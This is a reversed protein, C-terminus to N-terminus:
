KNRSKLIFKNLKDKKRTRKGDVLGWPSCPHRGGSTKGEGGGLPHDVPNMAVGRVRPRWNKWRNRGAKGIKALNHESKCVEGITAYCSLLVKRIEGSALRITAYKDDKALLQSYGGATRSLKAGRGPYMEVCHINVGLPINKILLANGINVPANDGSVVVDNINLGKPCIIYRREGDSYLLLAIYPSRNPDYEIREVKASLNRKDRKWDIMRYKKKHGGGRHWATIRGYNNRGATNKKAVVLGSFPKGKHLLSSKVSVLGRLGPTVPKNKKLFIM